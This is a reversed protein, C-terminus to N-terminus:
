SRIIKDVVKEVIGRLWHVQEMDPEPKDPKYPGYRHLEQCLHYTEEPAITFSPPAAEQPKHLNWHADMIRTSAEDTFMPCLIYQEGDSYIYSVWVEFATLHPAYRMEVQFGPHHPM